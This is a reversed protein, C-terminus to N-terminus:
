PCGPNPRFNMVDTNGANGATRQFKPWAATTSLKPSDVVISVLRGNSSLAYLIGTKDTAAGARRNCDLTPHATVTVASGFLTQFPTAMGGSVDFVFLRGADDLAYGVSLTTGPRPEGILPSTWFSGGAITTSPTTFANMPNFSVLNSGHGAFALTPSVVAVAGNNGSPGLNGSDLVANTGVKFVTQFGVFGGFLSQANVFGQASTSCPWSSTLPITRGLAPSSPLGSVSQNFCGVSVVYPNFYAVGNDIVINPVGTTTDIAMEFTPGADPANLAGTQGSFPGFATVKSAGVPGPKSFTTVAVVENADRMLAIAAGTKALGIGGVSNQIGNTSLDTALRAGIHGQTDNSGVFVLEVSLGSSGATVSSAVALSVVAGGDSVGRVGGANPEISALQGLTNTASSGVLVNGKSDLAPAALSAETSPLAQVEWRKRNVTISGLSTMRQNELDDTGQVDIQFSGTMGNLVPVSLDVLWCGADGPCGADTSANMSTGNILVDVRRLHEDTNLALVLVDDRMASTPLLSTSALTPGQTDYSVPFSATVPSTSTSFSADVNKIGVGSNSAARAPFSFTGDANVTASAPVTLLSSLSVLPPLVFDVAGGDSNQRRILCNVTGPMTGVVPASVLVMELEVAKCGQTGCAEGATCMSLTCVGADMGADVGADDGADSGGDDVLGGGGGGGGGGLSGGGGGGGTMTGGGGGTGSDDPGAVCLGLEKNCTAGSPCDSNFACEKVGFACGSVVAVAALMVLARM